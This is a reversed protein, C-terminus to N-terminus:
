ASTLIKTYIVSSVSDVLEIDVRPDGLLLRACQLKNNEISWILPPARISRYFSVRNVDVTPVCLLISLSFYHDGECCLRLPTKGERDQDNIFNHDVGQADRFNMYASMSETDGQRCSDFFDARAQDITRRGLDRSGVGNSCSGAWKQTM